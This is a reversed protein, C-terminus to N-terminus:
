RGSVTEVDALTMQDDYIGAGVTFPTDPVPEIYTLKRAPQKQGARPWHYEVWYGGTTGSPCFMPGIVKGTPDKLDSLPMGVFGFLPNAAVKRHECDIVFVYSNAWVYDSRRNKFTALGAEKKQSLYGAAQRVKQVVQQPTAKEQGWAPGGSLPLAVAVVLVKRWM